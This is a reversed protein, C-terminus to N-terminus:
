RDANVIGDESITIGQSLEMLEQYLKGAEEGELYQTKYGTQLCPVFAMEKLGDVTVTLNLLGTYKTEDNFWFDGMSYVVPKGDIYEIGQLVHPHGGIVIDAGCDMFEKALDHQWTEFTNSDETGWHVYAILYDCQAAADAIVQKFEEPEYMLLVGPSDEEAQPTYRTKEANSAAVYGFKIGNVIFYVPEKAEEINRGGGVYPIGAKELLDATDLMAEPGYDYVHNNALSVIDTGMEKVLEMRGPKARFTYYKGNLHEGRDSICYEHNLLFVDAANTKKLIEPSISAELGKEEDFYDLVFGDEALCIDGAFLLNAQGKKSGDRQYIHNKGATEEDTFLGQYRDSAVQISEGTIQYFEAQKLSDEKLKEAIEKSAKKGYQERFWEGFPKKIDTSTKETEESVDLAEHVPHEALFDKYYQNLKETQQRLSRNKATFICVGILVALVALELAVVVKRIM